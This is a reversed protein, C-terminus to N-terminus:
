KLLEELKNGLDEGRLNKAIIVGNGDVLFNSPISRVGYLDAPASNWYALDSVHHWTLGDEEIGKLWAERTKDLSIGVIDFGKDHYKKYNEVVNPNERRCPPCWSAWFDLLVYKNDKLYDYLKVENGDVDNITFDPCNKGISVADYKDALKKLIQSYASNQLSPDLNAINARIEDASLRYSFNRYLIYNAVISAPHEKIYANIDIDEDLKQYAEYEDQLSSGTVVTGEYDEANSLNVQVTGPELFIYYPTEEHSLTLGYLEPLEIKADFKFKGDPSIQASDVTSFIKNNFKKLYVWGATAQTEGNIIVKDSADNQSCGALTLAVAAAGLLLKKM